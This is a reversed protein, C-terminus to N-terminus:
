EGRRFRAQAMALMEKRHLLAMAGLYAGGGVVTGLTARWLLRWEGVRADIGAIVGAMLVAALAARWATAWVPGVPFRLRTRWGLWLLVGSQFTVAISNALALGAQGLWRALVTCLAANLVTAGLAIGFPVLTNQHAYYIRAALELLSHGLLGLTFAVTARYVMDAARADFAGGRFLLGIYPRGLLLLAVASPFTLVLIARLANSAMRRVGEGDGAAVARSLAPFAATAIAMGFIVEPMQMLTWGMSFAAISGEELRSAISTSFLFVWQFMGLILIRPGMLRLLRLLSADGTRM